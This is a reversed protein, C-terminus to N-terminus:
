RRRGGLEALAVEGGFDGGLLWLRAGGGAHPLQTPSLWRFHCKSSPIRTLILHRLHHRRQRRRRPVVVEVQRSSGDAIAASCLIKQGPRLVLFATPGCTVTATVTAQSAVFQEVKDRPVVAQQAALKVRGDSDLQEAGIVLFTGPLQVTCTFSTGARAHCRAPVDRQRRSPRSLDARRARHDAGASVQQQRDRRAIHRRARGGHGRVRAGAGMVSLLGGVCARLNPSTSRELRAPRSRRAARARARRVQRAPRPRPTGAHCPPPTRPWRGRPGLRPCGGRAPESPGGPAPRGVRGCGWGRQQGARDRPHRDRDLPHGRDHDVLDDAPTRAHRTDDVRGRITRQDSRGTSSVSHRNLSIAHRSCARLWASAGANMGISIWRTVSFTMASSSKARM